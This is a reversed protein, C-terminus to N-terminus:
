DLKCKIECSLLLLMEWYLLLLKAPIIGVVNANLELIPVKQFIHNM